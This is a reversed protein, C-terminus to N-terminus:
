FYRIMPPFWDWTLFQYSLGWKEMAGELLSFGQRLPPIEEPIWSKEHKWRESLPWLASCSNQADCSFPQPVLSFGFASCNLLSNMEQVVSQLRLPVDTKKHPWKLAKSAMGRTAIKWAGPCKFLPLGGAKAFTTEITELHCLPLFWPFMHFGHWKLIRLDM